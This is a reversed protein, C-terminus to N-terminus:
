TMAERAQQRGLGSNLLPLMERSLIKGNISSVHEVKIGSIASVLGNILRDYDIEAASTNVSNAKASEKAYKVSIDHPIVQSGNPLYTLEGRGGENMYAFGGQWSDTGHALYPISGISVGPIKNIISIAANIGGIVDNVFGKVQGVLEQVAGSIGSFVSSVFGTLGNWASTIGDFVGTIYNRVNGMVSSVTSYISNFVGSVIGTLASIISSIANVTVSIFNSINSWVGAIISYVTSFIGTVTGIITGIVQVVAAIIDAVFTIIPTIIAMITTIIMGIFSIIPSITSIIITVVSVVVSLIDMIIPVFTQIVSMIVNLISILAPMISSIINMVVTVINTIVPLLASILQAIMSSLSTFIQGIVQALQVLFPALQNILSVLVPLVTSVLSMVTTIIQTIVPILNAMVSMIAPIVASAIGGVTTGLTTFVPVLNSGIVSALSVIQPGFSQFLMLLLKMPPSIVGLISLFGSGFGSASSLGSSFSSELGSFFGSFAQYLTNVVVKVTAFMSEFAPVFSMVQSILGDFIGGFDIGSVFEKVTQIKASVTDWISMVSNRFSENTQMLYMFGASLGALATVVLGIPSIMAAIVKAVAGFGSILTGAVKLAPGIGVAVAAGIGAAKVILSQVSEPLSDFREKIEQVNQIMNAFAEGFKVGLDSAKTELAGLSDAFEAMLPKLQSFFGGGQGGADLFNAGIRSISAGINDLAATFSTEGIIQAAGGINKEIANYLMQASIQGDSALQKVESAAVGAEEALWQYVPLGRDALQELDETYVTQGTQVKNIISGMESMSTGAIAAADATMSLYKTLEQGPKIGAAVANAATTAAEDLGFSTGKVSTLASDMITEITQADHGLGQLKARADDIGTLRNWGKVLVLGKLAAGAVLAPKTIKSTLSDGVSSIKKGVTQFKDGIENLKNGVSVAKQSLGELAKETSGIATKSKESAAEASYGIDAYAKKMAESKTMGAKEYEAAAKMVDSRIEDITKGSEAAIESLSKSAQKSAGTFVNPIKKQLNDVAKQATSVAKSFGSSDGTIKASLTFDSM